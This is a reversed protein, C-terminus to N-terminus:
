FHTANTGNYTGVFKTTGFILKTGYLTFCKLWSDIITDTASIEMPEQVFKVGFTKAM